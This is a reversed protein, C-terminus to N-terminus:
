ITSREPVADFSYTVRHALELTTGVDQAILGPKLHQKHLERVKTLFRHCAVKGDSSVTIKLNAEYTKYVLRVKEIPPIPEPRRLMKPRTLLEEAPSVLWVPHMFRDHDKDYVLTLAQRLNRLDGYSMFNDIM